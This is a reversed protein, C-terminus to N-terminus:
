LWVEVIQEEDGQTRGINVCGIPVAARAEELTDALAKDAMARPAGVTGIRWERMVFKGRADSPSDYIVYMRLVDGPAADGFGGSASSSM